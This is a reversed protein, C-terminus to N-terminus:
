RYGSAQLEFLEAYLGGARMLEEHTGRELIRGGSLVIIVDTSRMASLRHSVHITIASSDTAVVEGARALLLHETDADLSASPEDLVRVLPGERMMGRAIALQQWQGGSLEAGDWDPGLQCDLAPINTAGSNEIAARVATEDERRGLDGVGVTDRVLFEFRAADQFSATQRRHWDSKAIDALDDGDVVIRGQTPRYFGLLLKILTTKGAGNEGIVGVTMGPRLRLNVDTLIEEETGPYTFSVEEFDIGLTLSVPADKSGTTSRRAFNVLWVYKGAAALSATFQRATGAAGSVYGQVLAALSITLVVDGPTATGRRARSVVILIAGIWGVTFVAWAAATMLGARMEAKFTQRSNARYVSEYRTALMSQLRFVRLEKGFRPTTAVDFLHSAVRTTEATAESAATRIKTARVSALLLPLGFAPLVLLRLDTRGLLLLTTGGGVFFTLTTFTSWVLSTLVRPDKALIDLNDAFEPREHAELTPISGSIRMLDQEFLRAAAETAATELPVLIGYAGFMVAVLAALISVGLVLDFRDGQLAGDTIIKLAFANASAYLALALRCVLVVPVRWGGARVALRIAWAMAQLREFM